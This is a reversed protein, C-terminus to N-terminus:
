TNSSVNSMYWNYEKLAVDQYNVVAGTGFRGSCSGLSRWVGYKERCHFYCRKMSIEALNRVIISIHIKSQFYIKTAFIYVYRIHFYIKNGYNHPSREM